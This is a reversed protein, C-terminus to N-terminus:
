TYKIRWHHILFGWTMFTTILWIYYKALWANRVIGSVEFMGVFSFLTIISWLILLTYGMTLGFVVEMGTARTFLGLLIVLLIFFFTIRNFEAKNGTGFGEYDKFNAMLEWLLAGSSSVNILEVMWVDNSKLLEYGSGFNIYYNGFLKNHSSTGLNLTINGGYANCGVTSGIIDFSSNTIEIKCSTINGITGTVNFGFDYSTNPALFTGTRPWTNYRIGEWMFDTVISTGDSMVITYLNQTPRITQINITYGEKEATIRHSDDPDLFFTVSGSSDTLDEEIKVYTGEVQKEIIITVGNIIQAYQDQTQFTVYQGDSTSLLYLQTYTTENSIDNSQAYIRQPYGDAKYTISANNHFTFNPAACFIYSEQETLNVYTFSKNQSGDGTFYIWDYVELTSNIFLDTGEDKFTFNLFPTTLTANCIGFQIGQVDQSNISSNIKNAGHNITWYFQNNAIEGWSHSIESTFTMEINNGIKTATYETNNYWFSASVTEVGDSSINLIFTDSTTEYSTANFTIDRELYKYDWTGLISAINNLTDNAWFTLNRQGALNTVFTTNQNGCTMSTNTNNYVYWCTDVNSTADSVTWNFYLTHGITQNIITGYPYTVDLIPGTTDQTFYNQTWNMQGLTDNLTFLINYNGDGVSIAKYLDTCAVSVNATGNISYFCDDLTTGNTVTWNFHNVVTDYDTGNVPYIISAGPTVVNQTFNNQTWNMQGASDNITLLINHAGEGLPSISKYLDTCTISVNAAGDLSYQCTDLASTNMQTWNFHNITTDYTNGDIPYTITVNPHALDQTFTITDSNVLGNNDEVSLILTNSGEASTIAQFHPLTACNTSQNAAGNLSYQCTNMATANTLTWNFHNIVYIYTTAIPYTIEVDPADVWRIVVLGSGGLGPAEDEGCGGGGGGSNASANAGGSPSSSGTGGTGGIALTELGWVSLGIGGAGGTSGPSNSGLGGAGGGGGAGAYTTSDYGYGGAYGQGAIGTGGAFKGTGETGGGGGGSGGNDGTNQYNGGDGGATSTVSGFNSNAGAAGVTYSINQYPTVAYDQTKLGGAGGGGSGPPWSTDGGDGGGALVLISINTVGNPVMFTGSGSTYATYNNPLSDWWAWETFIEGFSSGIWDISEYPDKIGTIKWKYEGEELNEGNYETWEEKTFNQTNNNEDIYEYTKNEMIYINSELLKESGKRNEFKLDDFLQGESYFTATGSAECNILCTDTNYDLTYEALTSGLGFLNTITIKGYNSFDKDFSKVNDFEAASTMPVNM